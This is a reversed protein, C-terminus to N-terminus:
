RAILCRAGPVGAPGGDDDQDVEQGGEVLAGLAQRASNLPDATSGL